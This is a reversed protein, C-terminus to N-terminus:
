NSQHWEDESPEKTRSRPIGTYEGRRKLHLRKNICMFRPPVQHLSRGSNTGLAPVSRPETDMFVNSAREKKPLPKAKGGRKKKSPPPVRAHCRKPRRTPYRACLSADSTLASFLRALKSMILSTITRSGSSHGNLKPDGKRVNPRKYNPFPM